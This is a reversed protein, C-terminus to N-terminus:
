RATGQLIGTRAVIIANFVQIERDATKEITETAREGTNDPSEEEKRRSRLASEPSIDSMEAILADRKEAETKKKNQINTDPVNILAIRPM